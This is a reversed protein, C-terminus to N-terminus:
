NPIIKFEARRNMQYIYEECNEENPCDIAQKTEGFWNMIIRSENIGQNILYKRAAEARKRSLIENYPGSGRPDTHASIEIKYQSNDNMIKAVEAMTKKADDRIAASNYDFYVNNLKLSELMDSTVYNVEAEEKPKEATNNNNETSNAEAMSEEANNSETAETSIETNEAVAVNNEYAVLEGLNVSREKPSAPVNYTQLLKNTKQDKYYLEYNSAVDAEFSFSGNKEIPVLVQSGNDPNFIRVYAQGPAQEIGKIIGTLLQSAKSKDEFWFLDDNGVGTGRNSSFYGTSGDKNYIIGFDDNETNYPNGLNQPNTWNGQSKISRFVDLGGLGAHGDSCFYLTGDNFLYPFMENGETNITSGLNVPATWGEGSKSCKYLDTGGFGGPRNSIFYLDKGDFSMCPHANSFEDSNFPLEKIDEWEGEVRSAEYIKLNVTGTMDRVPKGEQINNRTVYIKQSNADYTAPGDHFRTNIAGDIPRINVLEHSSGKEGVYIDLYPLDNWTSKEQVGFGAIGPSSFIYENEFSAIGFAPQDDNLGLSRVSVEPNPELLAKYYETNALHKQARSDGPILETYKKYWELAQPYRGHSKLAEALYLMDKAQSKDMLLTKEFWEASSKIDGVARYCLGLQRTTHSDTPDKDYSLEYFYIAKIYDFGEFFKDGREANKNSQALCVIGGFFLLFLSTITIKFLNM